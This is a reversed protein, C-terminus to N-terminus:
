RLQCSLLGDANLVGVAPSSISSTAPLASNTLCTRIQPELPAASKWFGEGKTHQEKYILSAMVASAWPTAMSTGSWSQEVGGVRAFVRQGPALIDLGEGRNTFSAEKGELDIAGIGFTGPLAALNHVKAAGQNGTAALLVANAQNVVSMVRTTFYEQSAASYNPAGLSLNLVQAPFPNTVTVGPSTEVPQGVAYYISKIVDPTTFTGYPDGVNGQADPAPTVARMATIPLVKINNMSLSNSKLGDGSVSFIIHAVASGHHADDNSIGVPIDANGQTGTVANFWARPHVLNFREKEPTILGSDIVAVVVPRCGPRLRQQAETQKTLPYYAKESSTLEDTAYQVESQAGPSFTLAPEAYQVTGRDLLRQVDAQSARVASWHADNWTSHLRADQLEHRVTDLDRSTDLLVMWDQASNLQQGSLRQPARLGQLAREAPLVEPLTAPVSQANLSQAQTSCWPGAPDEGNWYTSLTQSTNPQPTNGKNPIVPQNCATLTLLTASILPLFTKKM